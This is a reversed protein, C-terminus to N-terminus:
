DLIGLQKDLMEKIAIFEASNMLRLGFFRQYQGKKNYVADVAGYLRKLSDWKYLVQPYKKEFKQFADNVASALAPQSILRPSTNLFPLKDLISKIQEHNTTGFTDQNLRRLIERIVMKDKDKAAELLVKNEQTLPVSFAEAPVGLALSEWEKINRLSIVFPVGFAIGILAGSVIVLGRLAKREEEPDPKDAKINISSIFCSVLLLNLFIKKMMGGLLQIFHLSKLNVVEEEKKESYEM